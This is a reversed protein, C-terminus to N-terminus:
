GSSADVAVFTFLLGLYLLSYLYLDLAAQRSSDIMMRAALALFVSGTSLAGALYLVGLAPTSIWLLVSLAVVTFTYLLIQVRTASVGAVVPLMPIRAATYQDKLIIALAWFHPPTWFFVLAFLYWAPLALSGTVAAWGVLPPIAGAAGGIVINHTTSRKLWLTYVLVYSLTGAMALLAALLNAWLVLTAFALVTLVLGFTFASAPAIRGSAVPRGRTRGMLPDSKREIWHNLASAGGSALAGGVMAAVTLVAPPPGGYALVMAGYTTLLLLSMIRPKTLTVYDRIAGGTRTETPASTSVV